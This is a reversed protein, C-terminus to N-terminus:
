HVSLRVVWCLVLHVQVRALLDWCCRLLRHVGRVCGTYTRLQLLFEAATRAAQLDCSAGDCSLRPTKEAQSVHAADCECLLFLSQSEAAWM